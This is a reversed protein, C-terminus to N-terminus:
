VDFMGGCVFEPEFSAIRGTDFDYEGICYLDFDAPHSNFLSQTNKCAVQFNRIASQDNHDFLPTMFTTKKDRIVYIRSKM